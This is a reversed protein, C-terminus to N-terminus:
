CAARTAGATCLGHFARVAALFGEPNERPSGHGANPIIAWKAGPLIRRLEANIQQHLVITHEGEIVLIPMRLRSVTEKPLNPFPAAAQTIARFFRANQMVSAVAAPQMRDFSEKGAFWDVLRRMANRDKGAAFDAKAPKMVDDLFQRNVREGPTGDM